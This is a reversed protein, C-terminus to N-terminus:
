VDLGPQCSKPLHFSSARNREIFHDTKIQLVGAVPGNQKIQLYDQFCDFDHQLATSAGLDQAKEGAGQIVRDLKRLQELM